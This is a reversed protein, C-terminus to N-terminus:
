VFYSFFFGLISAKLEIVLLCYQLAAIVLTAAAICCTMLAAAGFMGSSSLCFIVAANFWIVCAPFACIGSACVLTFSNVNIIGSNDNLSM